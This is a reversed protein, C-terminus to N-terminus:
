PLPPPRHTLRYALRILVLALIIIGLSKHLDFLWTQFANWPLYNVAIGLPVMTIVLVAMTWHV